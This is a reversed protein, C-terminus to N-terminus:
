RPQRDRERLFAQQCAVASERVEAYGPLKRAAAFLPDNDMAPYSCYNRRVAERLFELAHTPRGAASVLSGNVYLPEGDLRRASRAYLAAIADDLAPGSTEFLARQHDSLLPLVEQLPRGQRLLIGGLIRNSWDSGADIRAFDTARQYNGLHQFTLTCSRIGIDGSDIAWAKECEAASEELLGGYRLVYATTLHAESSDPRRAVLQAADHWAEALEGSEARMIISYRAAAVLEPDLAVARTLTEQARLLAKTGGDDYNFHYYHRRGLAAWAPAYSPDLRVSEELLRLAERTPAPDTPLAAARLYKTYAEPNRPKGHERIEGSLALRPMLGTQIRKALEGRMTLLDASATEFGERWFLKNDRVDIVELTVSLRGGDSRVHGSIIGAANLKRAAQRPDIDAALQRSVSFPRVVLARNYSLITTIEDPIALRLYDHSADGGLNAFPLVAFTRTTSVGGEPVRNRRLIFWGAALAILLLIAALLPYISITVFKRRPGAESSTSMQDEVEELAFQLDRASQFREDPKKSLCRRVIHDLGLPIAPQTATISPPDHEMIAAIVGARSKADFARRGTAMEYLLVGLAFIDTRADVPGAELQEPAMYQVTGVIAGEETLPMAQTPGDSAAPVEDRSSKALGFDLVKAGSKTIMVNGPKLDRHVIGEGHARDLAAAIEIGYRLVQRAPLPGRSLADALTQGDLYEMVLYDVGDHHGVDHLTCINPHTLNSISRAERDFREKARPNSSLHAPLVKIAVTRGLRTDRARYVEGM